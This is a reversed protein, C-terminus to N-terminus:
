VNNRNRDCREASVAARAAQILRLANVVIQVGPPGRTASM